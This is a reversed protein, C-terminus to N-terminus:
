EGELVEIEAGGISELFSMTSSRDYKPDEKEISVFFADDSFKPFRDSHFVGHFYQPLRNVHFMGFVAGLAGFLVTLGFTVPVFAQYSFFPKGAIVLPYDVASTWWQLWLGLAFGLAAGVGSIYGVKSQKLGMADDMGHIPFPSHCDFKTYGEDRVKEAAHLLEKPGEFRAIMGYELKPTVKTEAM